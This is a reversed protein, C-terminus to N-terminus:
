ALKMLPVVRFQREIAAALSEDAITERVAPWCERIREVTTRAVRAVEKQSIGADRAFRRLAQTDIREFAREGGITLALSGTPFYLRTCVYDYLPALRANRGDPYVVAWNKLHMDGNGVAVGFVIRAVLEEIDASPCLQAAVMAIYGTTRREYKDHPMQGAIQNFDEFHVRVGDSGRDFREIVFALPPEDERLTPLGDPFNQIRTMPVVSVNPVSLGITAAFRMIAYENEPLRAYANTPIKVIWRGGESPITLRDGRMSASFKLQTGALSFRLQSSPTSAPVIEPERETALPTELEALIRVAGPLDNGLARLFGFDPAQPLGQQRGIMTRLLSGAEPLLNAFFAPALTHTRPVSRLPEGLRDVLSQSLVPRSADDRYPDEFAFINFDGAVNTLSGVRTQNLWVSLTGPM